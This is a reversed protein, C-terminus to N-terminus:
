ENAEGSEKWQAYLKHAETLPGHDIWPDIDFDKEILRHRLLFNRQAKLSLIKQIGLDIQIGQSLNQYKRTLTDPHVDYGEALKTVVDQPYTRAWHAAKLLRALVRVVLDRRERLLPGSVVLGHLVGPHARALFDPHSVTDYLIRISVHRAVDAASDVAIADFENRQLREAIDKGTEQAALIKTAKTSFVPPNVKAREITVLEVDHLTLRATSLMTTYIKLQRAYGSDLLSNKDRVIGLRKSKLDAVSRIGAAALAVVPYTGELWALAVLRSDVGKARGWIAPVHDEDRLWFRDEYAWETIGTFGRHRVIAQLDPESDFEEQLFNLRRALASLTPADSNISYSLRDETSNRLAVPSLLATPQSM